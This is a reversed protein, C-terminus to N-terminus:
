WTSCPKRTTGWAGSTCKGAGEGGMLGRQGPRLSWVLVDVKSIPGAPLWGSARGCEGPGPPWVPAPYPQHRGEAAGSSVGPAEKVRNWCGWADPRQRMRASLLFWKAPVKGRATWRNPSRVEVAPSRPEMGPRPALIRCAAHCPWFFFWKAINEFECKKHGVM